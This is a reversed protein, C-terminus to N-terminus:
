NVVVKDEHQHKGGKVRKLLKPHHGPNMAKDAKAVPPLEGHEKAYKLQSKEMKDWSERTAGKMTVLEGTQMAREVEIFEKLRRTSLSDVATLVKETSRKENAERIAAQTAMKEEVYGPRQMDREKLFTVLDPRVKDDEVITVETGNEEIKVARGGAGVYGVPHWCALSDVWRDLMWGYHRDHRVRCNADVEKQVKLTWYIQTPSGLGASIAAVRDALQRKIHSVEHAEWMGKELMDTLTAVEIDWTDRGFPAAM